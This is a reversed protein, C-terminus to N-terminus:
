SVRWISTEYIEYLHGSTYSRNIPRYVKKFLSFVINSNVTQIKLFDVCRGRSVSM